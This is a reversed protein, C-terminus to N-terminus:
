YRFLVTLGVVHNEYDLSDSEAYRFRYSTDISWHDGIGYNLSLYPTYAEGRLRYAVGGFVNDRAAAKVDAQGLVRMVNSVTNSYLDGHRFEFGVTALLQELVLFRGELTFDHYEQDFVDTDNVPMMMMAPTGNDGDKTTFRYAFSADFRQTFRKGAKAGVEFRYGSRENDDVGEYGGAFFIRGWPADGIGFKHSLSLNGLGAVSDLDTADHHIEGLIEASVRLRTTGPFQYVRGFRASPRWIVDDDKESDFAANNLNSDYRFGVDAEAIWDTWEAAAPVAVLIFAVLTAFIPIRIPHARM